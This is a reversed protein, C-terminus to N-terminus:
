ERGVAKPSPNVGCLALRASTPLLVRRASGLGPQRGGGLRGGLEQPAHM